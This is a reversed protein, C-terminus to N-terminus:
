SSFLEKDKQLDKVYEDFKRTDKCGQVAQAVFKSPAKITIHDLMGKLISYRYKAQRRKNKTRKETQYKEWVEEKTLEEFEFAHVLVEDCKNGVDIEEQAKQILEILRYRINGLERALEIIDTIYLNEIAETNVTRKVQLNKFIEKALDKHIDVVEENTKGSEEERKKAFYRKSAENSQRRRIEKICEANDCYNTRRTTPVTAEKKCVECVIKKYRM